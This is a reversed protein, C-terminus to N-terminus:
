RGSELKRLTFAKEGIGTNVEIKEMELITKRGNRHNVMERKRVFWKGNAPDAECPDACTLTKLLRGAEDYFLAKRRTFIDKRIYDVRRSYGYDKLVAESAPVAVVVYCAEGDVTEEGQLTYTYEPVRPGTIDGYSFETGLFSDKKDSALKRRSKRLTPLYLWMHDEGGSQEWVLFGTGRVDPPYLFRILRKENVRDGTLVATTRLRRVRTKGSKNVMQM